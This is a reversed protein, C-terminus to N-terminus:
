PDPPSLNKMKFDSKAVYRGALLALTRTREIDALNHRLLDVWEEDEHAAVARESDDFPDCDEGGVLADYVGVLGGEDGTYFRDVMTMTDAFAMSPFPWDVDRRVCASRVFPLDFGGRWTEGNYATLYQRDGDLHDRAFADLGRLLDVESHYVAVRVNSGSAHELDTELREADAERGATNLALWSGLDLTLGAVTIVAGPDLGSTEIDFAVPTLDGM